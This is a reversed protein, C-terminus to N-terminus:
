ATVGVDGIVFGLVGSIATETVRELGSARPQLIENGYGDALLFAIRYGAPLGSAGRLRGMSHGAQALVQLPQEFRHAPALDLRTLREVLQGRKREALQAESPRVEVALKALAGGLRHQGLPLGRGLDGADDFCQDGASRSAHQHGAGIRRCAAGHELSVRFGALM